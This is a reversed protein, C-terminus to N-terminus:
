LRADRFKPDRLSQHGELKHRCLWAAQETGESNASPICPRFGTRTKSLYKRGPPIEPLDRLATRHLWPRCECFSAIGSRPERGPEAVTKRWSFRQRAIMYVQASSDFSRFPAPSPRSVATRIAWGRDATRLILQSYPLISPQIM